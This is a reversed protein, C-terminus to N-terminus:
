LNIIYEQGPNIPETLPIFSCPSVTVMLAPFDLIGNIALVGIEKTVLSIKCYALVVSSAIAIALFRSTKTESDIMTPLASSCLAM